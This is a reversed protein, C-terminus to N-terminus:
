ARSDFLEARAHKLDCLDTGGPREEAPALLIDRVGCLDTNCSDAADFALFLQQCSVKRRQEESPLFSFFAIVATKSNM